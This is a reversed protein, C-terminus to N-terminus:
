AAGTIHLVVTGDGYHLFKYFQFMFRDEVKSLHTWWLRSTERRLPEIIDGFMGRRVGNEIYWMMVRDSM